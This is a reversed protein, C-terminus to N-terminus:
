PLNEWGLALKELKKGGIRTKKSSFIKGGMHQYFGVTPNKKLVWVFMSQHKQERLWKVGMEFLACGLGCGQKEKLLYIAYLEGAYPFTPERSIGVDIFGTIKENEDLSIFTEQQKGNAMLIEKRKRSRKEVSLKNLAEQPIIGVYTTRWTAVHVAAIGTEDGLKAPRIHFQTPM